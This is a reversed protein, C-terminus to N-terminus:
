YRWFSEMEGMQFIKGTDALAVKRRERTTKKSVREDTRLPSPPPSRSPPGKHDGATGKGEHGRGYQRVQFRVTYPAFADRAAEKNKCAGPGCM